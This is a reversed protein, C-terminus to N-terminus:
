DWDLIDRINCLVDRSEEEQLTGVINGNSLAGETDITEILLFPIVYARKNFRVRVVTREDLQKALPDDAAFMPAFLRTSYPMARASVQVLFRDQHSFVLLNM